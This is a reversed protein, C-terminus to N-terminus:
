FSIVKEIIFQKEFAPDDTLSTIKIQTDHAGCSVKQRHLKEYEKEKVLKIKLIGLRKSDRKQKYEINLKKLENDFFIILNKLKKIDCTNHLELLIDYRLNKGFQACLTFAGVPINLSESALRMAHVAQWETLKEGTISAVHEGKHLFQIIPTKNYFGIVRIIDNTFYRYLGNNNTIILFYEEGVSVENILCVKKDEKISMFEFFIYNVTLVGGKANDDITISSHGETAILGIDRV